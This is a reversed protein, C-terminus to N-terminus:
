ASEVLAVRVGSLGELAAKLAHSDVSPVCKVRAEVSTGGDTVEISDFVAGPVAVSKLQNGLTEAELGEEPSMRATLYHTLFPRMSYAQSDLSTIMKDPDERHMALVRDRGSMEEDDEQPPPPSTEAALQVGRAKLVSELDRLQRWFGPNPQVCSRATILKNFAADLGIKQRLMMYALCATSARSVGAACHVVVGGMQRGGEIFEAIEEFHVSLNFDESDVAGIIKVEFHEHLKGLGSAQSDPPGMDLRYDRLRYLDDSAVNLVRKIGLRHLRKEDRLADVSCIFLGEDVKNISNGM